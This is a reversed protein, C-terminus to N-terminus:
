EPEEAPSRADSGLSFPTGGLVTAGEFCNQRLLLTAMVLPAHIWEPPRANAHYGAHHEVGLSRLRTLGWGGAIQMQETRLSAFHM